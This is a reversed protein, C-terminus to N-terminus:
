LGDNAIAVTWRSGPSATCASAPAITAIDDVTSMVVLVCPPM